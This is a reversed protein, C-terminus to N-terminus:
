SLPSPQLSVILSVVRLEYLCCNVSVFFRLGVINLNSVLPQADVKEGDGGDGSALM